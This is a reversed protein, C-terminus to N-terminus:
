SIAEAEDAENLAQGLKPNYVDLAKATTAVSAAHILAGVIDQRATRPYGRPRLGKVLADAKKVVFEPVDSPMQAFGPKTKQKPM